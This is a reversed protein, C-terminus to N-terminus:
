KENDREEEYIKDLFPQLDRGFQEFEAFDGDHMEPEAMDTDYKYNKKNFIEAVEKYFRNKKDDDLEQRLSLFIDSRVIEECSCIADWIEKNTYILQKVFKNLDSKKIKTIDIKEENM